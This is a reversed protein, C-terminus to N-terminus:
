ERVELLDGVHLQWREFAGAPAVIVAPCGWGPRSLRRPAMAVVRRVELVASAGDPPATVCWAVDLAAPVTVTQVVAPHHLIVVGEVSRQWGRRRAEIAALVRDQRTL